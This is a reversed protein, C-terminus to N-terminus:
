KQLADEIQKYIIEKGPRQAPAAIFKGSKDILFYSPITSIQYNKATNSENNKCLLNIGSIQNKEQSMRWSEEDEDISINIFVIDKGEFYKKLKESAPIEALCPRCWSAWFDIYVVKGLFSELSVKRGQLDPLTFGPAKSGVTFPRKENYIALLYKFEPQDGYTKDAKTYITTADNFDGFQIVEHWLQLQFTKLAKGTFYNASFDYAQVANPRQRSGNFQNLFYYKLFYRYEPSHIFKDNNVEINKLFLYYNSDVDLRKNEIGRMTYYWEPYNIKINEFQFINEALQWQYFSEPLVSKNQKLYKIKIASLSDCYKKFDDANRNTMQNIIELSFSPSELSKIFHQTQKITFNAAASGSGSFVYREKGKEKKLIVYLSDNAGAYFRLVTKLSLLTVIQGEWFDAKMKFVGKSNVAFLAENIETQFPTAVYQLRVTENSIAPLTGSFTFTKAKASFLFGTLVILLFRVKKM